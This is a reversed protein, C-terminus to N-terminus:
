KRRMTKTLIIGIAIGVVLFLLNFAFSYKTNDKVEILFDEPSHKKGGIEFELFIEYLGPNKFEHKLDLIGDKATFNNELLVKDNQVIKIKGNIDEWILGNKNGFSFLFSAKEGAVPVNPAVSMQVLVDDAIKICGGNSYALPLFLIFAIIFVLFQITTKKMQFCFVENKLMCEMLIAKEEAAM